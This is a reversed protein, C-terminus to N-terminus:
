KKIFHVSSNNLVFSAIHALLILITQKSKMHLKFVWSWGTNFSALIFLHILLIGVDM